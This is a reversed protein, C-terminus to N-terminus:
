FWDLIRQWWSPTSTPATTAGPVVVIVEEGSRAVGFATRMASDQGRDTALVELDKNLAEKRGELSKYQEREERAQSIAIHAKDALRWILTALWFAILLLIVILIWKRLQKARM